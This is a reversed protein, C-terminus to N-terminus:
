PSSAKMAVTILGNYKVMGKNNDMSLNDKIFFTMRCKYYEREMIFEMKLCERITNMRKKLLLYEMEMLIVMKMIVMMVIVMLIFIDEKEMSNIIIFNDKMYNEMIIIMNYDMVKKKVVIKMLIVM